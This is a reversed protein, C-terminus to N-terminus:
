ALPSPGPNPGGGCAAPLGDPRLGEHLCRFLALLQGTLVEVLPPAAIGVGARDIVVSPERRLEPPIAEGVIVRPRDPQRRRLERLLELEVDRAPRTPSVFAVLLTGEALADILGHRLATPIDAWAHVRGLTM